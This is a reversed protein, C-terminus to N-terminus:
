DKRFRNLVFDNAMLYLQIVIGVVSLLAWLFLGILGDLDVAWGDILEDDDFSRKPTRREYLAASAPVGALYVLVFLM